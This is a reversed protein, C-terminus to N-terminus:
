PPMAQSATLTALSATGDDNKTGAVEKAFCTRRNHGPKGCKSCLIPSEDAEVFKSRRRLRKLKPRGARKKQSLCPPSTEGDYTLADMCVPLINKEFMKQACGHRYYEHVLNALIYKEDLSKFRYVACAHRCPLLTDQWVGCSCWREEPRVVFTAKYQHISPQAKRSKKWEQNEANREDFEEDEDDYVGSDWTTAQYVVSTKELDLIEVSATGKWRSKMLRRVRPVVEYSGEGDYKKRCECTRRIMVDIVTDMAILWPLNRAENFMSNVSEATNSTVIGFRPPLHDLSIVPRVTELVTNAFPHFFHIDVIHCEVDRSYGIVSSPNCRKLEKLYPIILEFSRINAQAAMYPLKENYERNSATKIVDAPVPPGEKTARVRKLIENMMEGQRRRKLQRGDAALNTKVTTSHKLNSTTLIYRGGINSKSVFRLRFPCKVHSCCTYLRFKGAVSQQIRLRNSSQLEYQEIFVALDDLDQFSDVKANHVIRYFLTDNRESVVTDDANADNVGNVADNDDAKAEYDQVADL